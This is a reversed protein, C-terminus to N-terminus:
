TMHSKEKKSERTFFIAPIAYNRIVSDILKERDTKNWVSQRQFGPTLNLQDKEYLNILDQITRQYTSHTIEPNAM